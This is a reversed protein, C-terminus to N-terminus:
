CRDRPGHCLTSDSLRFLRSSRRSGFLEGFNARIKEEVM